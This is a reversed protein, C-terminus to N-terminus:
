YLSCNRFSTNVELYHSPGPTRGSEVVETFHMIDAATYFLKDVVRQDGDKRFLDVKRFDEGAIMAICLLNCAFRKNSRHYGM